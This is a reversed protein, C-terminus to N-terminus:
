SINKGLKYADEGYKTNKISGATWVGPAIVMGADKWGIFSPDFAVSFALRFTVRHINHLLRKPQKTTYIALHCAQVTVFYQCFFSRSEKPLDTMISKNSM